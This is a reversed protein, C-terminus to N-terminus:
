TSFEDVFLHLESDGVVLRWIQLAEFAFLAELLGKDLNVWCVLISFSVDLDLKWLSNIIFLVLDLVLERTLLLLPDGFSVLFFNDDIGSLDLEFIM